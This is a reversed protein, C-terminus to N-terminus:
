FRRRRTPFRTRTPFSSVPNGTTQVQPTPNRTSDLSPPSNGGTGGYQELCLFRSTEVNNNLSERSCSTWQSGSQMPVQSWMFVNSNLKCDATTSDGDDHLMGLLHGTEHVVIKAYVDQNWNLIQLIGENYTSCAGGTFAVGVRNGEFDNGSFLLTVDNTPLTPNVRNRWQHFTTMLPGTLAEGASNKAM